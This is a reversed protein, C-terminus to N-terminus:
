STCFNKLYFYVFPATVVQCDLRDVVGGHGPIWTGFDKKGHARKVVSALFGGFPAVFSVFAAVACADRVLNDGSSDQQGMMFQLLPVSAVVTSLTAGLFGEWTKKPSIVPLLAHKGMIMGFVYAMTDNIIVLLAPFLVWLMGYDQLTAIWFSSQGVLLLLALHSAALTNLNERFTEPGSGKKNQQIVFAVLSTTGMAYAVLRLQPLLVQGSMAAVATVFYWWKSISNPVSVVSTTEAYLGAQILFVLAMMGPTGFYQVFAWLSGLMLVAPVTRQRVNAWKSSTSAEPIVVAAPQQGGRVQLLQKTVQLEETTVQPHDQVRALFNHVNHRSFQSNGSVFSICLLLLLTWRPSGKM